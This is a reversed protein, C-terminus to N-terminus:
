AAEQARLSGPGSHALVVGIRSRVSLPSKIADTGLIELSGSSPRVLTTLMKITTSKGAGNPGLFGFVQGPEVCLDLNSVAATSGYSKSLSKADIAPM